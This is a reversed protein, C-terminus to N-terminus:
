NGYTLRVLYIMWFLFAGGYILWAAWRAPVYFNVSRPAGRSLRNLGLIKEVEKGRRVYWDWYDRARKDLIFFSVTILLGGIGFVWRYFEQVKSEPGFLLTILGGTLVVFVPLQWSRFNGYHRLDAGIEKYEEILHAESPAKEERETPKQEMENSGQLHHKSSISAAIRDNIWFNFIVPIALLLLLGLALFWWQSLVAYKERLGLYLFLSSLFIGLRLIHTDWCPTPIDTGRIVPFLFIFRTSTAQLCFLSLISLMSLFVWQNAINAHAVLYVDAGLIAGQIVFSPWKLDQM